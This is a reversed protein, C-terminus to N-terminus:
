VKTLVSRLLPTKYGRIVVAVKAFILFNYWFVYARICWIGKMKNKRRENEIWAQWCWSGEMIKTKKKRRKRKERRCRIRGERIKKKKRKKM